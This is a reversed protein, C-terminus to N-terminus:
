LLAQTALKVASSGDTLGIWPRSNLETLIVFVLVTGFPLCEGEVTDAKPVEAAGLVNLPCSEQKVVLGNGSACRTSKLLIALYVFCELAEDTRGELRQTANDDAYDVARGLLM